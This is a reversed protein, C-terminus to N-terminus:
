RSYLSMVSWSCTELISFISTLDLSVLSTGCVGLMQQFTDNDHPRICSHLLLVICKQLKSGNLLGGVTHGKIADDEVICVESHTM